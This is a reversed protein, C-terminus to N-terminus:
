FLGGAIIYVYSYGAKFCYPKASINFSYGDNEWTAMSSTPSIIISTKNTGECGYLAGRLNKGQTYFIVSNNINLAYLENCGAYVFEPAFPLGSISFQQTDEEPTFTVKIVYPMSELLQPYADITINESVSAGRKEISSKLAEKAGKIRTIENAISM